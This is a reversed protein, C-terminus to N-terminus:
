APVAGAHARLARRYVGELAPVYREASFSSRVLASGRAGFAAARPADGLLEALARALAAEDGPPVLLGVEGHALWEPIGGTRSAVVPRGHALAELGVLGFPEPWHSPLAVVGARDYAKALEDGDLWGLFAIRGSLGLRAALRRARPLWWGEGAIDLPVDLRAAARLLTEVGKAEVVRGSFLIRPRSPLPTPEPLPHLLLPVLATRTVGNSHLHREIFASHAVVAHVSRLADLMRSVQPYHRLASRPDRRHVCGRAYLNGLCGPGHPRHCEDGPARFYKAGSICGVFDHVDVVVPTERAVEHLLEPDDVKHVHVVDPRVSAVVDLFAARASGSADPRGLGPVRVVRAASPVRAHEENVVAVVDLGHRSLAAVSATVHAAIGGDTGIYPTAVLVRLGRELDGTVRHSSLTSM